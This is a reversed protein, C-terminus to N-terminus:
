ARDRKATNIRLLAYLPCIGLIGTVLPILGILGLWKWGGPLILLLSLIALGVIARAWRETTGINKEM